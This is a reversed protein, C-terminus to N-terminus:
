SLEMKTKYADYFRSVNRAQYFRIVRKNIKYKRVKDIYIRMLEHEYEDPTQNLTFFYSFPKIFGKFESIDNRSICFDDNSLKLKDIDRSQTATHVTVKFEVALNTLKEAIDGRRKRESSEDNGYRGKTQLLEAYDFLVVDVKYKKSIEILIERCQEITGGGFSEFGYVFIEGGVKKIHAATKNLEVKKNESIGGFEITSIELGAWGADYADLCEKESGELQFHVVVRGQRANSIGVWRLVTSKGVGSPAMWLVSVGKNPGGYFMDDLEPIGFTTKELLLNDQNLQRQSERVEWDAFVKKYQKDKISFNSIIESEKAMITIAEDPKKSYLIQTQDYLSVFRSKKIFAELTPLLDKQSITVKTDKIKSLLSIIEDTSPLNQTITGLTPLKNHLNHYNNIFRYVLKESETQLFEYKLHDSCVLYFDLDELCVKLVEVIFNDRLKM